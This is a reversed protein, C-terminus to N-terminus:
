VLHIRVCTRAPRSVFAVVALHVPRVDFVRPLQETADVVCEITSSDSFDFWEALQRGDEDSTYLKSVRETCELGWGSSSGLNDSMRCQHNRITKPICRVAALPEGADYTGGATTCSTDDWNWGMGDWGPYQGDWTDSAVLDAVAQIAATEPETCEATACGPASCTAPSEDAQLMVQNFPGFDHFHRGFIKLVSGGYL